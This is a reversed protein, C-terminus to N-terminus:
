IGAMTNIGPAYRVVTGYIGSLMKQKAASLDFIVRQAILKANFAPIATRQGEVEPFILQMISLGSSQGQPNTVSSPGYQVASKVEINPFNDALLKSVNVNFANTQTFAAEHQPDLALTMKSRRDVLGANLTIGSIVLAQIDNFIENATAKVQNGVLWTTGGYAKPAPSISAPLNPDNLLGYNALGAVGYFYGFNAFTNLSRMRARQKETIWNIKARAYRAVELDGYEIIAQFLFSQRQPFNANGSNQGGGSNYDGYATTEGVVEVIPFMATQEAWDGAQLENGLIEVARLPAFLVQYINPDVWTTFMTPIGANPDTALGPLADMAMAADCGMEPNSSVFGYPETGPAWDKWPIGREELFPKMALFRARSEQVNV